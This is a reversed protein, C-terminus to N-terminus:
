GGKTRGGIFAEDLEVCSNMTLGLVYQRDQNAIAQRRKDLMLQATRWTVGILKRLREASIGGKDATMLYIAAFWKTLPLRTIEFVTGVTPSAHYDCGQCRRIRHRAM